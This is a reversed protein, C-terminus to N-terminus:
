KSERVDANRQVFRCRNSIDRGNRGDERFGAPFGFGAM